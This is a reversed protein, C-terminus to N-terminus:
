ESPKRMVRARLAVLFLAASLTGLVRLTIEVYQGVDTLAEVTPIGPLSARTAFLFGRHMTYNSDVFGGCSMLAAGVAVLLMWTVLARLPRLGYGSVLCYVSLVLRDFVSSRRDNRRMEMEGYYFDAASPM